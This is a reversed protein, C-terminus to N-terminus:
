KLSNLLNLYEDVLIEATGAEYYGCEWEYCGHEVCPASPFYGYRGNSYGLIFTMEYPSNEKISLGSDDFM